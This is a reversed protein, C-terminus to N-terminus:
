ATTAARHHPHGCYFLSRSQFYRILYFRCHKRICLVEREDRTLSGSHFTAVGGGVNIGTRASTNSHEPVLKRATGRRARLGHM